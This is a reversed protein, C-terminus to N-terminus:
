RIVMLGAMHCAILEVIQVAKRRTGQSFGSNATNPGRTLLGSRQTASMPQRSNSMPQLFRVPTRHLSSDGRAVVRFVGCFLLHLSLCSVVVKGAIVIM